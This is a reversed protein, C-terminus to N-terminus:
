PPFEGEEFGSIRDAGVPMPGANQPPPYKNSALRGLDESELYPNYTDVHPNVHPDYLEPRKNSYAM